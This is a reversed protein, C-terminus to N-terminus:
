KATSAGHDNRLAARIGWRAALAEPVLFVLVWVVAVVILSQGMSGHGTVLTNILDGAETLFRMSFVAGIASPMRLWLAIIMAAGMGLNRIGWGTTVYSIENWQDFNPFDSFFLTPAIVGLLGSIIGIAALLVGFFIIWRPIDRSEIENMHQANAMSVQKRFGLLIPLM